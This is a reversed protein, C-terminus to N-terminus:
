LILNMEVTMPEHDSSRIESLVKSGIVAINKTWVHDLYYGLVKKRGDPSFKVPKMGASKLLENMALTKSKTWTNFDGALIAPGKHKAIRNTANKIMHRLKNTTVFNIGHINGVLLTKNTGKIKYETFLTMKPTRTIPERFFSRQWSFNKTKAKAATVVGTKTNSYKADEWATAMVFNHDLRENFARKMRPNLYAEQLIMLDSNTSLETFDEEWGVVKGKYINWILVSIKQDLEQPAEPSNIIKTIINSDAPVYYRGAFAQGTFFLLFQIGILYYKM